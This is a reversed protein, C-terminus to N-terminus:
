FFGVSKWMIERKGMVRSFTLVFLIWLCILFFKATFTLLGRPSESGTIAVFLNSFDIFAFVTIEIVEWDLLVLKNDLSRTNRRMIETMRELLKGYTTLKVKGPLNVQQLNIVCKHYTHATSTFVVQLVSRFVMWADVDSFKRQWGSYRFVLVLMGYIYHSGMKNNTVIWLIKAWLIKNNSALILLM